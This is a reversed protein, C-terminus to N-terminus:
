SAMTGPAGRECWEPKVPTKFVMGLCSRFATKKASDHADRREQADNFAMRSVSSGIPVSFGDVGSLTQPRQAAAARAKAQLGANAAEDECILQAQEATATQRAGPLPVITESSAHAVVCVSLAATLLIETLKLQSERANSKQFNLPGTECHLCRSDAVCRASVPWCIKVPSM